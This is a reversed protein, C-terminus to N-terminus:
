YFLLRLCDIRWVAKGTCGLRVTSLLLARVCVCVFACLVCLSDIAENVACVGRQGRGWEERTKEGRGVEEGVRVKKEKKRKEEGRGEEKERM